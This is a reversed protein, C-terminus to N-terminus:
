PILAIRKKPRETAAAPGEAYQLYMRFHFVTREDFAAQQQAIEPIGLGGHLVASAVSYVRVDTDANFVPAEDQGNDAVVAVRGMPISETAGDPTFPDANQLIVGYYRGPQLGMRVEVFANDTQAIEGLKM